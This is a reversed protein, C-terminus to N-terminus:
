QLNNNIWFCTFTITTEEIVEGEMNQGLVTTTRGTEYCYWFLSACNLKSDLNNLKKNSM